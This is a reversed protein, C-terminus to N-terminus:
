QKLLTLSLKTKLILETPIILPIDFYDYVEACNSYRLEDIESQQPDRYQFYVTRSFPFDAGSEMVQIIPIEVINQYKVAIGEGGPYFSPM